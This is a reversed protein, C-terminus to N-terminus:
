GRTTPLVEPFTDRLIAEHGLWRLMMDYSCWELGGAFPRQQVDGLLERVVDVANEAGVLEAIRRTVFLDFQGQDLQITEGAFLFIQLQGLKKDVRPAILRPRLPPSRHIM